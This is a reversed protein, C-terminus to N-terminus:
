MRTHTCASVQTCICRHVHKRMIMYTRTPGLRHVYASEPIHMSESKCLCPYLFLRVWVWLCEYVHALSCIPQSVSALACMCMTMYLRPRLLPLVCASLGICMCMCVYVCIRENACMRMCLCVYLRRCACMCACMRVYVRECAWVYVCVGVYMCVHVQVSAGVCICLCLCLNACAYVRM